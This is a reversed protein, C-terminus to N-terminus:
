AKWNKGRKGKTAPRSWPEHQPVVAPRDACPAKAAGPGNLHIERGTQLINGAALLNMGEGSQINVAGDAALSVDKCASLRGHGVAALNLNGGAHLSVNGKATVNFDGATTFSLSEAAYVHVHGDQDLEIWSKGQATSIYIRENTDDLIIQTGEATRIRVRATTPHDQMVITHRGPTTLCYTQPDLGAEVTGKQYGEAGDKETLAQAVQREYVGRTKAESVDLKGGFQAKLNNTTPQVPEEVDTVPGTPSNRGLPLSRNGHDPFYCGVYFRQNFDGYLFGVIVTAGVKPIAWFGYSHTGPSPAGSAGTPYDRVQGALPSVYTIWPLNDLLYSDHEGDIAPCWAKIRGMQQPDSTDIVIGHVFPPINM